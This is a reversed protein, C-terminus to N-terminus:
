GGDNLSKGGAARAIVSMRNNLETLPKEIELYQKILANEEEVMPRMKALLVDRKARLPASKAVIAEKEALLKNFVLDLEPFDKFSM